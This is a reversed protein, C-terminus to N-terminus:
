PPPTAEHEFARAVCEYLRRGLFPKEVASVGAAAARRRINESLHGTVLIVPISVQRDRLRAVFELGNMAPMNYNVILCSPVPPSGDNLLQDPDSYLHVLFGETELSFKLSNRVADDDDLVLVHRPAAQIQKMAKSRREEYTGLWASPIAARRMGLLSLVAARGFLRDGDFWLAQM